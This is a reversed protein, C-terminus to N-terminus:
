YWRIFRVVLGEPNMLVLGLLINLVYPWLPRKVPGESLRHRIIAGDELVNDVERLGEVLDLQELEESKVRFYHWVLQEKQKKKKIWRSLLHGPLVLLYALFAVEFVVAVYGSLTSEAAAAIVRDLPMAPLESQWIAYLYGLVITPASLLMGFAVLVMLWWPWRELAEETSFLAVAAVIASLGILVFLLQEFLDADGLYM